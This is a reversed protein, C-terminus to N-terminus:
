SPSQDKVHNELLKVVAWHNDKTAYYLPTRGYHDKSNVEVQGTALLLKVIIEYGNKIAWLLPTEGLHNKLNVEVQDSALLLKVIIKHGKEVAWFLPTQGFHDKPNVEIQSIALLQKVVIEHGKNAAWLLPTHGAHDRSNVEVQGTALLLKVIIDYGNRAALSLPTRKWNNKSDVEVQGTALLLKVIIDYGNRAAWSLPTQGFRDKSDVEAQGTALLLKVIIEYGNGAAWSLPTRGFDDMLDVEVQGTALLLKVIIEYGNRAARSLSTQGFDDKLNIEAQATAIVLDMITIHRNEVAIALPTKGEEGKSNIEFQESELLLKVVAAHGNKAALFLPAYHHYGKSDVEIQDTELLLKVVAQYGNEAAWHLPSKNFHDRIDVKVQGTNLLIKVIAEHGHKAAWHLPSKNFHDRIDVKVQGTNLLIKVIAEHGHEAALSLPTRGDQWDNIDPHITELLLVNARLEYSTPIKGFAALYYEDQAAIFREDAEEYKSMDDLIAIDDWLRTAKELYRRPEARSFVSVQSFEKILTAFEEEDQMNGYSSEWDWVLEFDRLFQIKSGPFQTWEHRILENLPTAAIVVVAFYDKCLRIISPKSAGYVLCVIDHKRIPKASAQFIWERDDDDNLERDKFKSTIMVHQLSDMTVSQVMGIITGKCKIRATQSLTKVSLDNGLIFKVLRPFIKDWSTEYNAQLGGKEPKDSSMGLLAFVKDRIDTAQRTHFMDILEALSRIDLSLREPLNAKFKPRLGAREILDMISPLSELGSSNGNYLKLSKVGSCFAYGDITTSGCMIIIHRAAAAEQLVWIRQFWPNQLLKLIRDQKLKEMWSEPIETHEEDVILQIHELAGEIEVTEEGLWVIVRHATSYIRAMLQVQQKREENNNQDICIADIWMIREFSHDRLRLLAAHLNVTVQFQKKNVSIPLTIDPDGWVYSLAEYLHIRPTSRQLSYDRLECHLPAAEDESPLLRLLRINDGSTALAPDGAARSIEACSVINSDVKCSIEVAPM